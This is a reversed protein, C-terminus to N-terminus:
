RRRTCGVMMNVENWIGLRDINFRIAIRMKLFMFNFGLNVGHKLLAEDSGTGTQERGRHELNFLM